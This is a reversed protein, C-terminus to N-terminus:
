SMVSFNNVPVNLRLMFLCIMVLGGGKELDKYKMDKGESIGKYEAVLYIGDPGDVM